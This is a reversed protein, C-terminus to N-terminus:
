LLNSSTRKESVWWGTPDKGGSLDFKNALLLNVEIQADEDKKAKKSTSANDDEEDTKNAKRKRSPKKTPESIDVGHSALRAKEYRAQYSRTSFPFV